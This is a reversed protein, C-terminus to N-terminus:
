RASYICSSKVKCSYVDWEGLCILVRSPNRLTSGALVKFVDDEIQGECVVRLICHCHDPLILVTQSDEFGFCAANTTM